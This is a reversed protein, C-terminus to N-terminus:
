TIGDDKMLWGDDECIVRGNYCWGQGYSKGSSLAAAGDVWVWKKGEKVKIIIHGGGSKCIIHVYHVDLGFAKALRWLLQSIDSCNLGQKNKLRKLAVSQTYIDNYYYLYKRNKIAEYGQKFSTIKKGVADSFQNIFWQDESSTTTTTLTTSININVFNPERKNDQIFKDWRGKMDKYKAKTIYRYKTNIDLYVINPERNNDKTYKEFRNIMDKFQAKEIVRVNGLSVDLGNIGTNKCSIKGFIGDQKLDFRGQLTKIAKVTKDGCEGDIEASYIGLFQLYKQLEKVDEGKSGKKIEVKTCDM